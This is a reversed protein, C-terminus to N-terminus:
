EQRRERPHFQRHVEKLFARDLHTYIQTTVISAHGLMEQVARLDAGGELLHTAFSHRLVHPSIRKKIGAARAHGRLIKWFGMRSLKGGRFNLFLHDSRQRRSILSPRAHRAYKEVWEIAQEGIPVLRERNGKGIVRVWAERPFYDSLKVSILESVRVGTAYLFELLARDRLGLPTNVEPTELLREVDHIELVNPLRRGRKPFSLAAAPDENAYREGVLYRHFMRIATLLRAISTSAYGAESLEALLARIVSSTSQAPHDIQHQELFDAYRTLDIQYSLVTNRAMNRETQLYDLFETVLEGSAERSHADLSHTRPRPASV